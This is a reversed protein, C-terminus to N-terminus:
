SDHRLFEGHQLFHAVQNLTDQKLPIFTHSAPLVIHDTMGELKTSEVTVKGDNEGPLLFWSFWPDVTKNGAIVGLEFTIPGLKHIISEYGTGLQQGAPGFRKQYIKYEKLFDAVESGQNPPAIMVVRGLNEPQFQEIIVRTILGGMSYGVFHIRRNQDHCQQLVREFVHEALQEIPHDTSAYNDSYVDYNLAQLHKQLKHMVFSGRGIGHLLVVYDKM